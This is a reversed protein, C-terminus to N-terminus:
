LKSVLANAANNSGAADTGNDFIIEAIECGKMDVVIHAPSFDTTPSVVSVDVNKNGITPDGITDCFRETATVASGAVGTIAGCTCAVQCLIVPYWLDNTGGTGKVRSWGIVRMDFTDNDSALDCFPTIKLANPTINGDDDGNLVIRGSGTPKTTTPIKSAFSTDTSNTTLARFSGTAQTHIVGM